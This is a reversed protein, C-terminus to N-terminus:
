SWGGRHLVEDLPRRPRRASLGPADDGSPVGLAVAGLLEMRDPIGLESRLEAEGRFVGFFLAGLGADTAALLLTMVSMSADVTWYPVPWAESSGGLGSARKDAESYRDLYAQPDALPLLIVPAALLRQWRFAARREHPLTVDWFRATEDGELAVVHWGQSNGASPARTALDVLREVTGDPLSEPLFARTMRRRRVVESFEGM